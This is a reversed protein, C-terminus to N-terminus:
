FAVASVQLITSAPWVLAAGTSSTYNTITVTTTSTPAGFCQTDPAPAGVPTVTVAWGHAAAPLTIVGSSAVGGTGVNIQFTLTGNGGNAVISPATGFGSAITPATVSEALVGNVLRSTTFNETTFKGTSPTTAGVSIGNITGGTLVVAAFDLLDINLTDLILELARRQNPDRFAGTIRQQIDLLEAATAM